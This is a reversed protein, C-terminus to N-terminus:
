VVANTKERHFSNSSHSNVLLEHLSLGGYEELIYSCLYVKSDDDDDKDSEGFIDSDEDEEEEDDDDDDDYSQM